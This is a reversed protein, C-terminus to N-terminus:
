DERRKRINQEISNDDRNNINNKNKENNKDIFIIERPKVMGLDQRAVKEVYEMTDSSKIEHKLDHIDEQLMNITEKNNRLEALKMKEEYKLSGIKYVSFLILIALIIQLVLIGM